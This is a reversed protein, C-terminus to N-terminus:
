AQRRLRTAVDDPVAKHNAGSSKEGLPRGPGGAFGDPSYAGAQRSKNKLDRTISMSLRSRIAISSRFTWQCFSFQWLRMAIRLPCTPTREHPTVSMVFSRRCECVFIQPAAGSSQGIGKVIKRVMRLHRRTQRSPSKQAGGKDLFSVAPAKALLARDSPEGRDFFETDGTIDDPDRNRGYFELRNTGPKSRHFARCSFFAKIV